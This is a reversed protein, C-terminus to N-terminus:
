RYMTHIDDPRTALPGVSNEALCLVCHLTDTFGNKVAVSFAGLVGAAGGCDRKMGPMATKGKISLGGTDYVIGKGVWAIAKTSTAPKHSLVVLAPPHVSAKGVGYLGGFGRERLEEGRIITPVIGLESAVKKAEDVFATTNMENCPADVLRAALQIAECSTELAKKDSASLNAPSAPATEGDVVLFEVKVQVERVPRPQANPPEGVTKRSYASYARAM